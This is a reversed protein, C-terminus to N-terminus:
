LHICLKADIGMSSEEGNEDKNLFDIIDFSHNFRTCKLIAGHLDSLWWSTQIKVLHNLYCVGYPGGEFRITAFCTTAGYIMTDGCQIWDNLFPMKIPHPLCIKICEKSSKELMEEKMADIIFFVEPHLDGFPIYFCCLDNKKTYIKFIFNKGPNKWFNTPTGNKLWLEFCQKLFAPIETEM